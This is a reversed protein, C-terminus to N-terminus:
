LISLITLKCRDVDAAHNNEYFLTPPVVLPLVVPIKHFCDHLGNSVNVIFNQFQCDLFLHTYLYPYYTVAGALVIQGVGAKM